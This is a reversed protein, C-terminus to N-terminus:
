IKRSVQLHLWELNPINYIIILLISEKQLFNNKALM